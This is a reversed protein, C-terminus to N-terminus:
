PNPQACGEHTYDAGLCSLRTQYCLGTYASKWWGRKPCPGDVVRPREPNANPIRDPPGVFTAHGSWPEAGPAPTERPGALTQAESQPGGPSTTTAGGGGAYVIAPPQYGAKRPKPAPAPAAKAPQAAAATAAATPSPQTPSTEPAPAENLPYFARRESTGPEYLSRWGRIARLKPYTKPKPPAAPAREPAAAAPAQAQPKTEDAEPALFDLSSTRREPVIQSLGSLPAPRPGKAPGTVEIFAPPPEGPAFLWQSWHKLAFGSGPLVLCVLLGWWYDRRVVSRKSPELSLGPM